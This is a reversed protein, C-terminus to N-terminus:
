MPANAWSPAVALFQPWPVPRPVDLRGRLSVVGFDFVRASLEVTRTDGGVALLATGLSATVPPNPIQIAQAEGRAPRARAPARDGLLAFSRDLDIEYGLDYLRYVVIEGQASAVSTITRALDVSRETAM